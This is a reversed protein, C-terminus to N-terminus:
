HRHQHIWSEALEPKETVHDANEGEIETTTSACFAGNGPTAPSRPEWLGGTVKDQTVDQWRTLLQALLDSSHQGPESDVRPVPDGAYRSLATDTDRTAEVCPLGPDAVTSRSLNTSHKPPERIPLSSSGPCPQCSRPVECIKTSVQRWALRGAVTKSTVPVTLVPCHTGWCLPHIQSYSKYTAPPDSQIPEFCRAPPRNKTFLYRYASPICSVSFAM